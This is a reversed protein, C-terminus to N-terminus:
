TVSPQEHLVSVFRHDCRALHQISQAGLPAHSRDSRQQSARQAEDLKTALEAVNRVFHQALHQTRQFAIAINGPSNASPRGKSDLITERREPEREHRQEIPELRPSIRVHALHDGV